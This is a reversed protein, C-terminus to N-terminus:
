FDEDYFTKYDHDICRDGGTIGVHACHHHPNIKVLGTHFYRCATTNGGRSMWLNDMTGALYVNNYYHTCHTFNHYHGEIDMDPTCYQFYITCTSNAYAETGFGFGRGNSASYVASGLYRIVLDSSFIKLKGNEYKLTFPGDETLNYTNLIISENLPHHVNFTIDYTAYVRDGQSFIKKITVKSVRTDGAVFGFFYEVNGDINRFIGIPVVRGKSDTTFIDFIPHNPHTMNAKYADMIYKAEPYVLSQLLYTVISIQMDAREADHVLAIATDYNLCYVTSGIWYNATNPLVCKCKNAISANGAFGRTSCACKNAVCSVYNTDISVSNCISYSQATCYPADYKNACYATNNIYYVVNPSDCQCRYQVTANGFFGPLCQCEANICDAFNYDNSIETCQDRVSCSKAITLSLLALFLVYM